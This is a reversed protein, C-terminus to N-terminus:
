RKNTWHQLYSLFLPYKEMIEEQMTGLPMYQFTEQIEKEKDIFTTADVGLGLKHPIKELKIFYKKGKVDKRIRQSTDYEM